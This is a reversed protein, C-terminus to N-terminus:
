LGCSKRVLRNIQTSRLADPDHPWEGLGAHHLAEHILIMAAAERAQRGFGECLRTHSRGIATFALAAGFGCIELERNTEAPRYITTSLMEIGNAGLDAFLGRCTDVERVRQLALPYAQQLKREIRNTLGGLALAEGSERNALLRALAITEGAEAPSPSSTIVFRLVSPEADPRDACPCGAEDSCEAGGVLFLCWVVVCLPGLARSGRAQLRSPASTTTKVWAHATPRDSVTTVTPTHM